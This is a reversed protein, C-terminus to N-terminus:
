RLLEALISLRYRVSLTGAEVFSRGTSIGAPCLCRLLEALLVRAILLSDVRIQRHLLLAPKCVLPLHLLVHLM